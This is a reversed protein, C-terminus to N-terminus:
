EGITDRSPDFEIGKIPYWSLDKEIKGSRVVEFGEDVVHGIHRLAFTAGGMSVVKGIIMPVFAARRNVLHTYLASKMEDYIAAVRNRDLTIVLKANRVAESVARGPFPRLARLKLCGVKVGQARLANVVFKTDPYIVGMSVLIVEADECHHTAILGTHKSGFAESYEKGVNEILSVANVEARKQHHAVEMLNQNPLGHQRRLHSIREQWDVNFYDKEPKIFNPPPLFSDVAEQPPVFVRMPAHSTGEYGDYGVIAPLMISSDEIVKYVQLVTDFVDQSDECYFILWGKDRQTVVDDHDCGVTSPPELSRSPTVMLLPLRSNAAYNMEPAAWLIGESNICIMSRVGTRCVGIQISQAAKENEGFIIQLNDIEGRDIFRQATEMVEANPGMPFSVGVNVRARRLAWAAAENGTLSMVTGTVGTEVAKM